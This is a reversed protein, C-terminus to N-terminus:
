PPSFAQEATVITRAIESLRQNNDQSLKQLRRFAEPEDLGARQMLIGKAQEILKRDELAQALNEAQKELARFEQYRRMVLTIATELGPQKIPKVLYALVHNQLAREVYEPDHHASVVIVPLPATDRLEATADLGDLHPMRIDTIVLDPKLQICQEVLERGDTAAVVVLHGLKTLTNEYWRLMVPEDDAVAIRLPQSM